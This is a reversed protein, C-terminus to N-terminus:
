VRLALAVAVEFKGQPPRLAGELKTCLDLPKAEIGTKAMVAGTLEPKDLYEGLVFFGAISPAMYTKEYFSMSRVIEDGLGLLRRQRERDAMLTKENAEGYLEEASFYINRQFFPVAAGDIVLSCMNPGIHLVVFAQGEPLDGAAEHFANGIATPLTDVVSPRIAVAALLQLHRSLFVNVVATVLVQQEDGKKASEAVVQYEMTASAIDFPLSKRLELKLANKMEDAPLTRFPIQAAYVQKGSVCTVVHSQASIGIKEGMAKLGAKLDQDTEYRGRLEELGAVTRVQRGNVEAHNVKAARIGLNDFEIGVSNMSMKSM